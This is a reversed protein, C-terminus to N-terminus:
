EFAFFFKLKCNFLKLGCPVTAVAFYPQWGCLITAVRLTRNGGAIYTAVRLTHNGGAFYLKGGAFYLKGGAFYLKGGAFHLKGGAFYGQWVTSHKSPEALLSIHKTQQFWSYWCGIILSFCQCLCVLSTWKRKYLYISLQYCNGLNSFEFLSSIYSQAFICKFLLSIYIIM